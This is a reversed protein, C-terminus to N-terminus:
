LSIRGVKQGANETFWINGDPGVTIGYPQCEVTPVRIETIVGSPSIRGIKDAGFETFWLNGDPGSVIYRPQSDTTPISFETLLGSPTLRGIKNGSYETFWINGDPGATIGLPGAEPTTVAFHATDDGSPSVRVIQNTQDETCWVNGDPGATIGLSQDVEPLVTREVADGATTIRSIALGDTDALVGLHSLGGLLAAAPAETFWLRGDPGTTIAEVFSSTSVLFLAVLGSPSVRGVEGEFETFWVNGDPGGVIGYGSPNSNNPLISFNGDPTM